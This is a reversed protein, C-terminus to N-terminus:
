EKELETAIEISKNRKRKLYGKAQETFFASVTRGEFTLYGKLAHFEENSLDLRTTPSDKTIAM